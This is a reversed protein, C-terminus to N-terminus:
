TTRDTHPTKAVTIGFRNVMSWPEPRGWWFGQGADAGSQAAVAASEATEIGEVVVRCQCAHAWQVFYPLFEQMWSNQPLAQTLGADIKVWQPQLATLRVVDALGGGFDDLAVQWRSDPDRLVDWHPWSGPDFETIEWVIQRPSWLADFRDQWIQWQARHAVTIPLVNLFLYPPDAAVTPAEQLKAYVAALALLDAEVLCGRRQAIAFFQQPTLPQDHWTARLLAEYGIVRAARFNWIPQFVPGLVVEHLFADRARIGNASSGPPKLCGDADDYQVRNKGLRKAFLLAQDAKNATDPALPGVAVGMSAGLWIDTDWVTYPTSTIAEHFTFARDHASVGPLWVHFEDGGMRVVRDSPRCQAVLRATLQELVRDGADHGWTDNIWKFDDLDVAMIMGRAAGLDSLWSELGYRTLVHTLADHHAQHQHHEVLAVHRRHYGVYAIVLIGMVIVTAAQGPPAWLASVIVSGALCLMVVRDDSLRPYVWLFLGSIAMGIGLAIVLVATGAHLGIEHWALGGLLFVMGVAWRNTLVPDWVTFAVMAEWWVGVPVPLLHSLSVAALGWGPALTQLWRAGRATLPTIALYAGEWAGVILGAILIGGLIDDGIPTRVEEKAM